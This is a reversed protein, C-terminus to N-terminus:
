TGVMMNETKVHVNVALTQKMVQSAVRDYEPTQQFRVFSDGSLLQNIDRIAEGFILEALKKGEKGEPWLSKNEAARTFLAKMQGEINNVTEESLNVQYPSRPPIYRAYISQADTLLLSYGEGKEKVRECNRGFAEYEEFFLIGELAFERTLFKKFAQRADPRALIGELTTVDGQVQDFTNWKDHFSRILPLFTSLVFAAAVGLLLFLTSFPFVDNNISHLFNNFFLGLFSFL